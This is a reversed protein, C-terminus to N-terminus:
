LYRNLKRFEKFLYYSTVGILVLFLAAVGWTNNVNIGTFHSVVDWIFRISSFVILPIIFKRNVKNLCGYVALWTFISAGVVKDWWQYALVWKPFQEFIASTYWIVMGLIYGSIAIGLLKM